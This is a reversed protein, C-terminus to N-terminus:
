VGREKSFLVHGATGMGPYPHPLLPLPLLAVGRARVSGAVATVGEVVVKISAVASFM